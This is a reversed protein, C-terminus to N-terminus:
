QVRPNKQIGELIMNALDRIQVLSQDRLATAQNLNGQFYAVAQQAEILVHYEFMQLWIQYSISPFLRSFFQALRNGNDIAQKSIQDALMQDKIKVANIYKSGLIIHEDFLKEFQQGIQPGYLSSFLSAISHANSLLKEKGSEIIAPPSNSAAAVIAQNLLFGHTTILNVLNQKWEQPVQAYQRQSMMDRNDMMVESYLFPHILMLGLYSLKLYKLRISLKKM